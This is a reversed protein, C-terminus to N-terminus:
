RCCLRGFTSAIGSVALINYFFKGFPLVQLGLTGIDKPIGYLRGDLAFDEVVYDPFNSKNATEGELVETLDMLMGGQAYNEVEDPHMVVIDPMNQGQAAAQLKMWYEDWPVTEVSVKINEHQKMFGEAMAVLGPEQNSDWFIMRLSVQDGSKGTDATATQETQAANQTSQQTGEEKTNGGGCACLALTMMGSLLIATVKKYKKM